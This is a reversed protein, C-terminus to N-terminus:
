KGNLVDDLRKIARDLQNQKAVSALTPHNSLEDGLRRALQLVKGAKGAFTRRAKGEPDQALSAGIEHVHWIMKRLDQAATEANQAAMAERVARECETAVVVNSTITEQLLAATAGANKRPEPAVSTQLDVKEYLEDVFQKLRYPNYNPALEVHHNVAYSQAREWKGRFRQVAGALQLVEHQLQKNWAGPAQTALEAIFRRLDEEVDDFIKRMTDISRSPGGEGPNAMLEDLASARDDTRRAGLILASHVGDYSKHELEDHRSFGRKSKPPAEAVRRLGTLSTPHSKQPDHSRDAPRRTPGHDPETKRSTLHETELDRSM